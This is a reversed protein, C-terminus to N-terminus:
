DLELFMSLREYIHMSANVQTIEDHREQVVELTREYM